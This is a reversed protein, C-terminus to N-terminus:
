LCRIIKGMFVETYVVLVLNRKKLIVVVNFVQFQVLLEKINAFQQDINFYENKESERM